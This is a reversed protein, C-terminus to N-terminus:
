FIKIVFIECYKKGHTDKVFYILKYVDTYVYIYIYSRPLQNYNFPTAPLNLLQIVRQM